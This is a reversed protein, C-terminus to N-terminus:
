GARDNAFIGIARRMFEARDTVPRWGLERQIDECDFRARMGLSRLHHYSPLQASWRGALRKILWKSIEFAQVGFPQRPHFRLPRGLVAGLEAIYERATPRVEGVVNYIRGVAAESRLALCIAEAVDEVLVFPLPAKGPGWGLCHQQNIFQGVAGHFPQGGKGVVIGPRLISVPLGRERHLGLLLLESAGKG